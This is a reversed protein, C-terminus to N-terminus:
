TRKLTVERKLLVCRLTCNHGINVEICFSARYINSFSALEYGRLWTELALTKCRLTKEQHVTFHFFQSKNLLETEDYGGQNFGESYPAFIHDTVTLNRKKVM